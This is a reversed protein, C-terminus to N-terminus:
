RMALDEEKVEVYDIRDVKVMKLPELRDTVSQYSEFNMVTLELEQNEKQLQELEEKNENMLFGSATLKNSFILYFFSVIFIAGIVLYNFTKLNFVFYHRRTNNIEKEAQGEEM